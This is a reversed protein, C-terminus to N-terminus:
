NSPCECDFGKFSNFYLSTFALLLLIVGAVQACNCHSKSFTAFSKNTAKYKKGDLYASIMDFLDTANTLVYLICALASLMLIKNLTTLVQDGSWTCVQCGKKGSLAEAQQKEEEIDDEEDNLSKSVCISPLCKGSRLYM